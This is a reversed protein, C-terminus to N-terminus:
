AEIVALRLFDKRHREWCLPTDRPEAYVATLFLQVQIEVLDM